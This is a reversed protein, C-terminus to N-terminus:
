NLYAIGAFAASFYLNINNADVYTIGGVAMNGASDVVTVSPFRGLDHKISWITAAVPQLFQFTSGSGEGPEGKEGKFGAVVLQPAVAKGIVVPTPSQDRAVVPMLREAIVPMVSARDFVLVGNETAIVLAVSDRDVVVAGSDADSM